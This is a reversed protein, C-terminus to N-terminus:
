ELGFTLSTLSQRKRMNLVSAMLLRFLCCNQWQEDSTGIRHLLKILYLRLQFLVLFSLTSPPTLERPETRRHKQLRKHEGKQCLPAVATLDGGYRECGLM